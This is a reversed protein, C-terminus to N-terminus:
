PTDAFTEQGILKCDFKLSLVDKKRSLFYFHHGQITFFSLFHLLWDFTLLFTQLQEGDFTTQLASRAKTLANTCTHTHVCVHM